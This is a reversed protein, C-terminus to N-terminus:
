QRCMGQSVRCNQDQQKIVGEVCTMKRSMSSGRYAAAFLQLVHLRAAAACSRRAVEGVKGKLAALALLPPARVTRSAPGHHM